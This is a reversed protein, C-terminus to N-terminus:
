NPLSGHNARTAGKTGIQSSYFSLQGVWSGDYSQVDAFDAVTAPASASVTLVLTDSSNALSQAAGQWRDAIATACLAATCSADCVGFSYGGSALAAGLGTCDMAAALASAVGTSQPVDVVARADAAVTALKSPVIAVVGSLQLVDNPAGAWVFPSAIIGAATADLTGLLEPTLACNGPTNGSALHAVLDGFGNALGASLWQGARDHMSPAHAGLWTQVAGDWGMQTRQTDFQQPAGSAAAMADLLMGAEGGASPSFANLVTGDVQALYAALAQADAPDPAFTFRAELTTDALDFPLDYVSVAVDRTQNPVLGDIDACGVAYHAIRVSIAVHGDTPVSPLVLTEGYTGVVLPSGDKPPATTLEACTTEFFASATLLPVPRKGLYDTTVRVDAFGTASVSVDLRASATGAVALLSFTTAASPARLMVAARGAQLPLDNADLFADLYNGSLAVAVHDVVGTTTLGISVTDGPALTLVGTQDFAVTPGTGGDGPPPPNHMSASCAAAGILFATLLTRPWSFAMSM